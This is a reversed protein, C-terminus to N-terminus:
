QSSVKMAVGDPGVAKAFKQKHICELMEHVTIIYPIASQDYIALHDYFFTEFGYDDVSNYLRLQEFYDRWM